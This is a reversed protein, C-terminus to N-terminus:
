LQSESKRGRVTETRSHMRLTAALNAMYEQVAFRRRGERVKDNNNHRNSSSSVFRGSEAVRVIENTEKDKIAGKKDNVEAWLGARRM